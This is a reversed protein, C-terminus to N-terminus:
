QSVNYPHLKMFYSKLESFEDDDDYEEASYISKQEELLENFKTKLWSSKSNLNIKLAEDSLSNIKTDLNNIISIIKQSYNYKDIAYEYGNIVNSFYDLYFVGDTDKQVLHSLYKVVDDEDAQPGRNKFTARLVDEHIVIRPFKAENSEMLYSANMAPGFIKDETHCVKGYTIGGRILFGYHIAIIILYHFYDLLFLVGDKQAAKVSFVISDSFHTVIRTCSDPISTWKEESSFEKNVEDFFSNLKKTEEEIENGNQEITSAIIDKFGLIDVFAVARDEYIM